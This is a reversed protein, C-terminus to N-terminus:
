RATPQRTLAPHAWENFIAPDCWDRAPPALPAASQKISDPLAAPPADAKAAPKVTLERKEIV